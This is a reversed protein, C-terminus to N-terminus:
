QCELVLRAVQALVSEVSAVVESLYPLIKFKLPVIAAFTQSNLLRMLKPPIPMRHCPFSGLDHDLM